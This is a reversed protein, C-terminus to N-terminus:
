PTAAFITSIEAATLARNFLRVEDMDASLTSTTCQESAGFHALYLNPNALDYKITLAASTGNGVEVGDVYLRVNAGDYSGAVFHWNGDWVGAGAPSLVSNTGDSVSFYVEGVPGTFFGYSSYTANSCGQAGKSLIVADIRPTGQKVWAMVTLHAPELSPSQAVEVWGDGSFSFAQGVRGAPDFGVAQVITGPNLGQADAADGEGKWYSVQSTLATGQAARGDANLTIFGSIPNPPIISPGSPVIPSGQPVLRLNAQFAFGGPLSTQGSAITVGIATYRLGSTQGVGRGQLIAAMIYPVGHCPETPICSDGPTTVIVLSQVSGSLTVWESSTGSTVFVSDQLPAVVTTTVLKRASAATSLALM